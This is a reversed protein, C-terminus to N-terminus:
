PGQAARSRRCRSRRLALPGSAAFGSLGHELRQPHPLRALDPHNERRPRPRRAAARRRSRGLRSEPHRRRRASGPHQRRHCRPARRRPASSRDPLDRRDQSRDRRQCEAGRRTRRPRELSGRQALRTRRPDRGAQGIAADGGGRAGSRGARGDCGGAHLTQCRDAAAARRAEGGAHRRRSQHLGPRMPATNAIWARACCRRARPAPRPRSTTGNPTAACWRARTARPTSGTSGRGGSARRRGSRDRRAGADAHPRVLRQVHGHHRADPRCQRAGRRGDAQRHGQRLRARHRRRQEEHLCLLM